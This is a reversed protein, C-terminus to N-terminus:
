SQVVGFKKSGFFTLLNSRPNYVNTDFVEGNTCAFLIECFMKLHSTDQEEDYKENTDDVISTVKAIIHVPSQEVFQLKEFAAFDRKTNVAGWVESIISSTSEESISCSSGVNM